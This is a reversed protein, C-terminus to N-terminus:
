MCQTVRPVPIGVSLSSTILRSTQSHSPHTHSRSAIPEGDINLKIRLSATKDLINGVKAKFQSFFAARRLHFLGSTSQALQVGSDEFFRDSKRHDQLFLLSVFESHLSGSTSAIASM